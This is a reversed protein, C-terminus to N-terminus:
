NHKTVTLKYESVTETPANLDFYYDQTTPLTGDWSQLFESVAQLETGDAGVVSLVVAPMGSSVVASVQEGAQGSLVYRAVQGSPLTGSFTASTTGSEFAIPTAALQTSGSADGAPGGASPTPACAAV